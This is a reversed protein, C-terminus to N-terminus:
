VMSSSVFLDNKLIFFALPKAVEEILENTDATSANLPIDEACPLDTVSDIKLKHAGMFAYVAPHLFPFGPGGLLISHALIAM